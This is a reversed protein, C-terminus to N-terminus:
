RSRGRARPSSVGIFQKSQAASPWAASATATQASQPAPAHGSCARRVGRYSARVMGMLRVSRTSTGARTMRQPRHWCARSASALRDAREAVLFAKPTGYAASGPRAPNGPAPRDAGAVSQRSFAAAEASEHTGCPRAQRRNGGGLERPPRLNVRGREGGSMLGTPKPPGTRQVQGRGRLRPHPDRGAGARIWDEGGSIVERM